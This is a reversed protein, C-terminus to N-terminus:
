ALHCRHSRARSRLPETLERARDGWSLGRGDTADKASGPTM